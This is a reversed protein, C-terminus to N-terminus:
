RRLFSSDRGRIGRLSITMKGKKACENNIPLLNEM